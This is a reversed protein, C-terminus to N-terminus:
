NLRHIFISVKAIDKWMSPVPVMLSYQDWLLFLGHVEFDPLEMLNLLCVFSPLCGCRIYM